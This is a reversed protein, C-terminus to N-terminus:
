NIARVLREGCQPATDLHAREWTWAAGDPLFHGPHDSGFRAGFSGPPGAPWIRRVPLFQERLNQRSRACGETDVQTRTFLGGAKGRPNPRAMSGARDTPVMPVCTGDMSVYFEPAATTPAPLCACVIKSPRGGVALLLRQIRSPRSWCSRWSLLWFGLRRHWQNRMELWDTWTLGSNHALIRHQNHTAPGRTLTSNGQRGQIEM